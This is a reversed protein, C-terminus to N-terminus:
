HKEYISRLLNLTRSLLMRVAAESKGLATAIEACRLEHVFRLRLVQQQLASLNQISAYLQHYEEQRLAFQEPALDDDDYVTEAIDELSQFQRRQAARFADIVKNRAVRWLWSRQESERLTGFNEKELAALFVDVLVDEAEEWSSTHMRLYALISPAHLRYLEAAADDLGKNGQRQM